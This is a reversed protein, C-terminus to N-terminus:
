GAKLERILKALAAGHNRVDVKEDIARLVGRQDIVFTRRATFRGKRVAYKDAVSGDADSLLAFNLEEAKAFAKQSAM